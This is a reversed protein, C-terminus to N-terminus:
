GSSQRREETRQRKKVFVSFIEGADSFPLPRLAHFCLSKRQYIFLSARHDFPNPAPVLSHKIISELLWWFFFFFCWPHSCLMKGTFSFGQPIKTNKESVWISVVACLIRKNRNYVVLIKKKERVLGENTKQERIIYKKIYNIKVKFAIFWNLQNLIHASAEPATSHM